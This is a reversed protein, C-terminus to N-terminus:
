VERVMSRRRARLIGWIAVVPVQLLGKSDLINFRLGRVSGSDSSAQRVMILVLGRLRLGALDPRKVSCESGLPTTPSSVWGTAWSPGRWTM